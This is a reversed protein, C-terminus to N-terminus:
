WLPKYFKLYEFNLVIGLFLLLLLLVLLLLSSSIPLKFLLFYLWSYQLQYSSNTLRVSGLDEWYNERSGTVCNKHHKMLSSPIPDILFISTSIKRLEWWKDEQYLISLTQQFETLTVRWPLELTSLSHRFHDTILGVMIVNLVLLLCCTPTSQLIDKKSFFITVLTDDLHKFPFKKLYSLRVKKLTLSM